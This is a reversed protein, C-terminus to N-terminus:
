RPSSWGKYNGVNERTVLTSPMLIMTSSPKKGNMLDYGVSVAQQAMSWPDQSASAQVM